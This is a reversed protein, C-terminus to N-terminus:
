RASSNAPMSLCAEVAALFANKEFPKALTSTAGAMEAISLYSMAGKMGAGSIALIPMDPKLKRIEKITQIGDMKPMLIDTVVLDFDDDKFCALGEIGDEAVAAEYGARGLMFKIFSLTHLEDDIVLIKEM